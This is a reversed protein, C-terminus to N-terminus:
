QLVSHVLVSLGRVDKQSILLEAEPHINLDKQIAYLLMVKKASASSVNDCPVAKDFKKIMKPDLKISRALSLEGLEQLQDEMCDESLLFKALIYKRLHEYVFELSPDSENRIIEAENEAKAHAM